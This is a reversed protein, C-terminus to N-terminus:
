EGSGDAEPAGLLAPGMSAEGRAVAAPVEAADAGGPGDAATAALGMAEEDAM